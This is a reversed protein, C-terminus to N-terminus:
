AVRGNLREALLSVERVAVSLGALSVPSEQQIEGLLTRYRAVEQERAAILRDAGRDVNGEADREKLVQVVMRHHATTLDDVLAQAARQEWRGGDASAFIAQRLWPVAILDSVRYFARGAEVPDAGTERGARLIEMLQDLFRLTILSQAFEEDAGLRRVEDMREEFLTRDDGSVIEPFRRRLASLGELNDRIVEATPVGPPVNKLVWGTTRQLV